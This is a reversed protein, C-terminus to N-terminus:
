LGLRKMQTKKRKDFEQESMQAPEVRKGFVKAKMEALRKKARAEQEASVPVFDKKPKAIPKSVPCPRIYMEDEWCSQNRWTQFHKWDPRFRNLAQARWKIQKEIATKLLPLIDRWKKHKKRLNAFETECGRKVGRYLIRADNFVCTEETTPPKFKM